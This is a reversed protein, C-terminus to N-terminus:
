WTMAFIVRTGVFSSCDIMFEYNYDHLRVLLIRNHFSCFGFFDFFLLLWFKLTSLLFIYKLYVIPRSGSKFYNPISANSPLWKLFKKLDVNKFVSSFRISCDESNQIIEFQRVKWMFTFCDFSQKVNMHSRYCPSRMPIIVHLGIVPNDWIATECPQRVLSDSVATESLITEGLQSYWLIIEFSQRV